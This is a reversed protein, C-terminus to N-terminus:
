KMEVKKDPLLSNWDDIVRDIDGNFDEALAVFQNQYIEGLNINEIILNRLRWIGDKYKGMQYRITYTRSAEGYVLQIVSALRKNEPSPEMGSVEMNAGGFALLGKAYSRILGHRLQLTFRNLQERLRRQGDKDLGRYYQQSGYPGMVGRAFGRWDVLDSLAEDIEEFYREPDVNFYEDADAVIGMIKSTVDLIIQDPASQKDAGQALMPVLNAISIAIMFFLKIAHM